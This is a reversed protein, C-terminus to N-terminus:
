AWLLAAGDRYPWYDFLNAVLASSSRLAKIHRKLESGSGELPKGSRVWCPANESQNGDHGSLRPFRLSNGEIEGM